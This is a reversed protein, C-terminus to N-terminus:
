ISELTLEKQHFGEETVANTPEDMPAIFELMHRHKAPIVDALASDHVNEGTFFHRTRARMATVCLMGLGEKRGQRLSPSTAEEAIVRVGKVM